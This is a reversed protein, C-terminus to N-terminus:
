QRDRRRYLPKAAVAGRRGAINLETGPIALASELIALGITAGLGHSYVCSRVEGSARGAVAVPTGAAVATESDLLFAALSRHSPSAAMGLLTDMGAEAPTLGPSLDPDYAPICQEVRAMTLADEGVLRVGSERLSEVLHQAVAPALMLEFGDEGSDSTRVALGRFGHFEFTAIQLPRLRAVLAEGFTASAAEGARPGVLSLQCTSETRDEVRADFGPGIAARLREFTAARRGPEGFIVYSIGGTRALLIMDDVLGDRLAVGRQARGEELEEPHPAVAQRVVEGADTGSIIARSVHSRDSVVASERLARYEGAPDGYHAPLNWTYREVFTAGAKAHLDRLALHYTPGNM